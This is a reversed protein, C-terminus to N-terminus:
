VRRVGGNDPTPAHLYDPKAPTMPSASLRRFSRRTGSFELELVALVIPCEPGMRAVWISHNYTRSFTGRAQGSKATLQWVSNRFKFNRKAVCLLWEDPM